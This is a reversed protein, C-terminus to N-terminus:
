CNGEKIGDDAFGVTLGDTTGVIADCVSVDVVLGIEVVTVVIAALILGVCIGDEVDLM